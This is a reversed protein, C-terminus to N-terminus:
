VWHFSIKKQNWREELSKDSYIYLCPFKILYITKRKANQIFFHLISHFLSFSSSFKDFWFFARSVVCKQLFETIIRINSTWQWGRVNFRLERESFGTAMATCKCFHEWLHGFCVFKIEVLTVCLIDEGLRVCLNDGELM